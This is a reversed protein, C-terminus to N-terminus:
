GGCNLWGAICQNPEKYFWIITVNPFKEELLEYIENPPGWATECLINLNPHGSHRHFFNIKPDRYEPIMKSFCFQTEEHSYEGSLRDQYEISGSIYEVLRDLEEDDTAIFEIDNECWNPM